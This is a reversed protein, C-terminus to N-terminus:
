KIHINELMCKGVILVTKSKKVASVFEVTHIYLMNEKDMETIAYGFQSWLEARTLLAATFM